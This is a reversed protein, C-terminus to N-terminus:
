LDKLILMLDSVNAGTKGTIIQSDTKSWFTFSDHGGLAVEPQLGGQEVSLITEQDAIAGAAPGNDWGDSACALVLRNDGLKTLAALALEQNRGGQGSSNKSIVTTEGGFLLATKPELPRTALSKGVEAAEGALTTTEIKAQYGLEEAKKAMATLARLNNVVLVTKVRSFYKDDKPTELVECSPLACKTVIQYKALIQEAEEKTTTDKTLPGSAIMSVDDGIVDSFILGIVTAPYAIKALQGGQVKSLHKRVTNLENIDAGGAILEAVIKALTDCGMENPSCLLASGGGSIVVLVLDRETAQDLLLVIDETASVNDNSPLPHTGVRSVLKSFIGSQVDLVFGGTLEHGFIEEAVEAAAVACKGIAIFYIREYDAFCIDLGRVCLTRTENKWDLAERVVHKTEIATLGSELIELADRRLKNGIIQEANNVWKM